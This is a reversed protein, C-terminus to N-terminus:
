LPIRAQEPNTSLPSGHMPAVCLERRGRHMHKSRLILPIRVRRCGVAERCPSTFCMTLLVYSSLSPDIKLSHEPVQAKRLEQGRRKAGLSLRSFSCCPGLFSPGPLAM